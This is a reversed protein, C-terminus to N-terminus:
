RKSIHCVRCVLPRLIERVFDTVVGEFHLSILTTSANFYRRSHCVQADHFVIKRAEFYPLQKWRKVIKKLEQCRNDRFHQVILSDVEEQTIENRREYIEDVIGEPLESILYWGFGNLMENKEEFDATYSLRDSIDFFPSLDIKSFAESVSSIGRTFADTFNNITRYAQEAATIMATDYRLIGKTLDPYAIEVMALQEHVCNNLAELSEIAGETLFHGSMEQLSRAAASEMLFQSQMHELQAIQLDTSIAKKISPLNELISLQNQFSELAPSLAISNILAEQKNLSEILPSSLLQQMRAETQMMNLELPTPEFQIGFQENSFIRGYDSINMQMARKMLSSDQNFNTKLYGVRITDCYKYIKM